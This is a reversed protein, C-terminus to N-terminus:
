REEVLRLVTERIVYRVGLGPGELDIVEIRHEGNVLGLTADVVISRCRDGVNEVLDGNKFKAM